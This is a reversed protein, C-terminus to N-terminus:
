HVRRSSLARCRLLIFVFHIHIGEPDSLCGREIRTRNFRWVNWFHEGFLQDGGDECDSFAAIVAEVAPLLFAPPLIIRKVHRIFTRSTLKDLAAYDDEISYAIKTAKVLSDRDTDDASYIARSLAQVFLAHGAHQTGVTAKGLRQILHFGDLKVEVSPFYEKCMDAFNGCCDRDTYIVRLQQDASATLYRRRLGEFVSRLEEHSDSETFVFFSIQGFENVGSCSWKAGVDSRLKASVNRTHDIRILRGLVMKLEANLFPQRKSYDLLYSNILSESTRKADPVAWGEKDDIAGFRTFDKPGDRVHHQLVNGRKKADVYSLCDSIYSEEAQLKYQHHSERLFDSLRSFPMNTHSSQRVLCAVDSSIGGRYTLVVPLSASLAPPLRARFKPNFSSFRLGKEGGCKYCRYEEALFYSKGPITIVSRPGLKWPGCSGLRHRPEGPQQNICQWGRCDDSADGPANRCYTSMHPRDWYVPWCMYKWMVPIVDKGGQPLDPIWGGSFNKLSKLKERLWSEQFSPMQWKGSKFSGPVIKEVDSLEIEDSDAEDDAVASTQSVLPKQSSSSSLSSLSSPPPPMVPLSSSSSLPALPESSSSSLSSSLSSFSSSSSSSSSPANFETSHDAYLDRNSLLENWIFQDGIHYPIQLRCLEDKPNAKSLLRRHAFFCFRRQQGSAPPRLLGNRDKRGPFTLWWGCYKPDQEYVDEFSKSRGGSYKGWNVIESSM